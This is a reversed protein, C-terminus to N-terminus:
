RPRDYWDTIAYIGAQYDSMVLKDRGVRASLQDPGPSFGEQITNKNKSRRAQRNVRIRLAHVSVYQVM